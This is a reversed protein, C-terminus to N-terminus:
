PLRGCVYLLVGCSVCAALHQLKALVWSCVLLLLRARLGFQHM